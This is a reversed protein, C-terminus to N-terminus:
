TNCSLSGFTDFCSNYVSPLVYLLQGYPGAQLSDVEYAEGGKQWYPGFLNSSMSCRSTGMLLLHLLLTTPTTLRPLRVRPLTSTHLLLSRHLPMTKTRSWEPMWLQRPPLSSLTKLLRLKHCYLGEQLHPTLSSANLSAMRKFIMRLACLHWGKGHVGVPKM